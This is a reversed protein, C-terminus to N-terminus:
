SEDRFFKLDLFDLWAGSVDASGDSAATAFSWSIGSTDKVPSIPLRALLRSSLLRRFALSLSLEVSGRCMLLVLDRSNPLSDRRAFSSSYSARPSSSPSPTTSAGGRSDTWTLIHIKISYNCFLEHNGAHCIYSCLLPHGLPSGFFNVQFLFTCFTNGTCLACPIPRNYASILVSM